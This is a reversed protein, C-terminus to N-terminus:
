FPAATRYPHTVSLNSAFGWKWTAWGELILRESTTLVRDYILIAAVNTPCMTEGPSNLFSVVESTVAQANYNEVMKFDPEITLNFFGDRMCTFTIAFPDQVTHTINAFESSTNIVLKGEGYLDREARLTYGMAIFSIEINGSVFKRNGVLFITKRATSSYTDTGRITKGGTQQFVPVSNWTAIAGSTAAVFQTTTTTNYFPKSNGSQDTWSAVTSNAAFAVAATTDLVGSSFGIASTAGGSNNRLTVCTTATSSLQVTSCAASAGTVADLIYSYTPSGSTNFFFVWEDTSVKELFGVINNTSLILSTPTNVTVGSAPIIVINATGSKLVKITTGIPFAVTANTPVTINISSTNTAKQITRIDTLALTKSATVTVVGDNLDSVGALIDTKDPLTLTRSAAPNWSLNGVNSGNIFKLIKAGTAKLGVQWTDQLTGHFGTFKPM